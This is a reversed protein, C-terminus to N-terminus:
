AKALHSPAVRGDLSMLVALPRTGDFESLIIVLIAMIPVSLIAGAVGWISSWVVLSVIIVFPSLNLSNGMLYPELFNGVAMQTASLALTITVVPGIAGFQMASLLVPFTVGLFSGVYPIYNFLGIMLAWFGAFEIGAVRMIAYSVLGLVVNVLTKMLLYTGIRSNVDAIIERIRRIQQADDSIRDIKRAFARREAVLFGAYIMVLVFTGVIATVSAITAGITRQLDIRALADDRLTQWSPEAEIGLWETAMQIMSLLQAEYRPVSAIITGINSILVLVLASLVGLIILLSVAFRLPTPISAGIRPVSGVFEALGLVIYAVILGAVIPLIVPRGIVLIWGIMIALLVGLVVNVFTRQM